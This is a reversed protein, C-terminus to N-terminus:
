DLLGRLQHRLRRPTSKPQRLVQPKTASLSTPDIADIEFTFQAKLVPKSPTTSNLRLRHIQRDSYRGPSGSGRPPSRHRATTTCSWADVACTRFTRASLWGRAQAPRHVRGYAAASCSSHHIMCRAPRVIKPGTRSKSASAMLTSSPKSASAATLGMPTCAGLYTDQLMSAERRRQCWRPRAHQGCNGYVALLFGLMNAVMHRKPGEGHCSADAHEM